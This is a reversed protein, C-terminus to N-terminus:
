CIEIVGFGGEKRMMAKTAWSEIKTEQNGVQFTPSCLTMFVQNIPVLMLRLDLVNILILNNL